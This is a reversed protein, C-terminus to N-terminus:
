SPDNKKAQMEKEIRAFRKRRQRRRRTERGRPDILPPATTDVNYDSRSIPAGGDDFLDAFWQMFSRRPHDYKKDDKKAM